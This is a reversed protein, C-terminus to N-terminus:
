SFETMNEIIYNIAIEEDFNSVKLAEFILSKNLDPFMVHIKDIVLKEDDTIQISSPENIGNSNNEVSTRAENYGESASTPLISNIKTLVNTFFTNPDNMIYNILSPDEKEIFTLLLEILTPDQNIQFLINLMEPKKEMIKFFKETSNEDILVPNQPAEELSLTEVYEHEIKPEQSSDTTPEHTSEIIPEQPLETTLEQTSDLKLDTSISSIQNAVEIKENTKKKSKTILLVLFHNENIQLETVKEENNEIVKGNCILKQNEILFSYKDQLIEKLDYIKTNEHYELIYEKKDITKVKIFM